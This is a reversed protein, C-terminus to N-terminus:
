VGLNSKLTEINPVWIEVGERFDLLPNILANPNRQAFVWWLRSDGYLDYALLDPRHHYTQNITIAVDSELPPIPRNQWVGLYGDVMATSHYPSSTSYKM